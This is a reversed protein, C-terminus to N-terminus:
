NGIAVLWLVVKSCKWIKVKEYKMSKFIKKNLWNSQKLLIIIEVHKKHDNDSITQSFDM